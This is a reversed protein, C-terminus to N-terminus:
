PPTWQKCYCRWDILDNGQCASGRTKLSADSM